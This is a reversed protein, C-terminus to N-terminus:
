QIGGPPFQSAIPSYKPGTKGAKGGVPDKKKLEEETTRKPSRAGQVMVEKKEQSGRKVM